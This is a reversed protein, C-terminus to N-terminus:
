IRCHRLGAPVLSAICLFLESVAPFAFSICPSTRIPFAHFHCLASSSLCSIGHFQSSFFQKALSFYLAAPCLFLLSIFHETMSLFPDSLLLAAISFCPSSLLLAALAYCLTSNILKPVTHGLDSVSLFLFTNILSPYAERRCARCRSPNSNFQYAVVGRLFPISGIPMALSDFPKCRSPSAHFRCSSGLFQVPRVHMPTAGVPM